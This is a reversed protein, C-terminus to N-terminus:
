EKLMDAIWMPVLKKREDMMAKFAVMDVVGARQLIPNAIFPFLLMGLMNLLFHVPSVDKKKERIQRVLVSHELLEKVPLQAFPGENGTRLENLVFIPLDPNKFLMNIYNQALLQLKTELDTSEDRIIPILVGFLQQIKESMVMQFLKEKSRFYYHLMAMNIGSEEAIDRTTAAAYGKQTFVKSAAEKIKEETSVDLEAKKKRGM